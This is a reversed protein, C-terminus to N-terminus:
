KKKEEQKKEEKKQKKWEPNEQKPKQQKKCNELCRIIKVKGTKWDIGLNHYALWPIKLIVSWKQDGIVNIEM